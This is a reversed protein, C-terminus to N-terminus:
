SRPGSSLDEQALVERPYPPNFSNLFFHYKLVNQYFKNTHIIHIMEKEIKMEYKDYMKNLFNHM